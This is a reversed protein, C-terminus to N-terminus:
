GALALGCGRALMPSQGRSRGTARQEDFAGGPADNTEAQWHCELRGNRNFWHCVLVPTQSRRKGAEAPRRPGPLNDNGHMIAARPGPTVRRLGLLGFGAFKEFM